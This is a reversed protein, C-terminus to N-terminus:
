SYEAARKTFFSCIDANNPLNLHRRLRSKAVKVSEPRINLMSAIEKTNMNLKLLACLRIENDTLKPEYNKLVKFFDKNINEFYKKFVEWEKELSQYQEINRITKIIKDKAKINGDMCNLIEKLEILLEKLLENKRVMELSHSTLLRAKGSLENKLLDKQLKENELERELLQKKHTKIQNEREFLNKEKIRREYMYYLTAILFITLVSLIVITYYHRTKILKNKITEAQKEKKLILIKKQKKDAEYKERLENINKLNDSNMLSDRLLYTKLLLNYAKNLKGTNKYLESLHLLIDCIYLKNGTNHAIKFAIKEYELAKNINGLNEYALSLNHYLNDLQLSDKLMLSIRIAKELFLLNKKYNNEQAYINAINGYNHQLLKINGTHENIKIAKLYYQKAKVSDGKEILTSALDNFIMAIRSSDNAQEAFSLAKTHYEVSKEFEKLTRHLNGLSQYIPALFNKGDTFVEALKIAELLKVVAKDYYGTIRYLMGINAYGRILKLTDDQESIIMIYKEESKLAKEPHGSQFELRALSEFIYEKETAPIKLNSNLNTRLFEIAINIKNNKEAHGIFFKLLDFSVSDTLQFSSYLRNAMAIWEDDSSDANLKETKTILLSDKNNAIAAITLWM